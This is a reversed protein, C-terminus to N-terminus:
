RGIGRLAIALREIAMPSDTSVAGDQMLTIRGTGNTRDRLEISLVYIGDLASASFDFVDRLVMGRILLLLDREISDSDSSEIASFNEDVLSIGTPSYGCGVLAVALRLLDDSGTLFPEAAASSYAEPELQDSNEVLELGRHIDSEVPRQEPRSRAVLQLISM